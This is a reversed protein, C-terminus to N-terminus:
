DSLGRGCLLLNERLQQLLFILELPLLLVSDSVQGFQDDGAGVQSRNFFYFTRLIFGHKEMSDQDQHIM